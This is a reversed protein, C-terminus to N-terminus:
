AKFNIEKKLDVADEPRVAILSSKHRGKIPYGDVGSKM